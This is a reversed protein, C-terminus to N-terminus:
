VYFEDTNIYYGVIFKKKDIIADASGFQYHKNSKAIRNYVTIQGKDNEFAAAHIKSFFRRGTWWVIIGSYGPQMKTCFSNYDRDLNVPLYHASFFRVLRLPNAGLLGFPTRARIYVERNIDELPLKRNLILLLNYVAIVCCGCVALTRFGFRMKGQPVTEQGSIFSNTASRLPHFCDACPLKKNFLYNRKELM